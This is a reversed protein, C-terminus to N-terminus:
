LNKLVIQTIDIIILNQLILFYFVCVCVCSQVTKIFHLNHEKRSKFQCEYM